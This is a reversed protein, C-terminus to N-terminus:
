WVRGTPGLRSKLPFAIWCLSQTLSQRILRAIYALFMEPQCYITCSAPKRRSSPWLLKSRRSKSPGAFLGCWANANYAWSVCYCLCLTTIMRVLMSPCPKSCCHHCNSQTHVEVDCFITLFRISACQVEEALIRMRANSETVAALYAKRQSFNHIYKRSWFGRLWRQIHTAQADFYAQLASCHTKPQHTGKM